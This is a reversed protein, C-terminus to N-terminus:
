KRGRPPPPPSPYPVQGQPIIEWLGEHNKSWTEPAPDVEVSAPRQDNSEMVRAIEAQYAAIIEIPVSHGPLSVKVPKVPWWSAAGIIVLLLPQILSLFKDMFIFFLALAVVRGGRVRSM